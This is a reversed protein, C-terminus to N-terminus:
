APISASRLANTAPPGTCPTPKPARVAASTRPPEALVQGARHHDGPQRGRHAAGAEAATKGHVWAPQSMGAPGTEWAQDDGGDGSREQGGPGGLGPGLGLRRDDQM